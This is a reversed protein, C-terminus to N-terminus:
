TELSTGCNWCAAFTGPCTEGCKPCTLEPSSEDRSSGIYTRILEVARDVDADNIICLTPTFESIAMGSVYENRFFTRIGEAELLSQLHGVTAGDHKRFIETM